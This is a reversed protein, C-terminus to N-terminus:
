DCPLLNNKAVSNNVILENLDQESSIVKFHQIFLGAKKNTESLAKAFHLHTKRNRIQLQQLICVYWHHLVHPTCTYVWFNQNSSFGSLDRFIQAFNRFIRSFHRGLNASFCM